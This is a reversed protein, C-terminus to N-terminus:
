EAAYLAVEGMDQHGAKDRRPSLGFQRTYERSFQTPSEYGVAFAASSVSCDGALILRRAEMLRLRKQYQLPTTGTVSRFHDHFASASMGADHALEAIRLPENYGRRIRVTARAIRASRSDTRTLARLMAGHRASLLWYHIERVTLPALIPASQPKETLDFLRRTADLIAGDADGAEIAAATERVAPLGGIEVALERLLAMDLELALAVYPRATSASVVRALTPLEMSIIVSQGECFTVARDGILAQKAGQLVLCFVPQYLVPKLVGPSRQRMVSLGGVGTELPLEGAGNRDAFDLVRRAINDAEM